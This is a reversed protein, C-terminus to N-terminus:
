SSISFRAVAQGDGGRVGAATPAHAASLTIDVSLITVTLHDAPDVATPAAQDSAITGAAAPIRRSGNSRYSSNRSLPSIRKRGRRRARMRIAATRSSGRSRRGRPRARTQAVAMTVVPTNVPHERSLEFPDEAGATTWDTGGLCVGSVIWGNSRRM